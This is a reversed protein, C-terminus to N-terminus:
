SVFRKDDKIKCTSVDGLSCQRLVHCQLHTMKHGAGVQKLDSRILPRGTMRSKHFLLSCTVQFFYQDDPETRDPINYQGSRDYPRQMLLQPCFNMKQRFFSKGGYQLEIWINKAEM